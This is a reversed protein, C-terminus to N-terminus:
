SAAGTAVPAANENALRTIASRAALVKVNDAIKLEVDSGRFGMITGYLGGSTLVRDGKNLGDLMQQHERQQKQQPRIILFYFIAFIAIIPVLSMIPNAQAPSM